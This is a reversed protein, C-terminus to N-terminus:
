NKNHKLHTYSECISLIHIYQHYKNSIKWEIYARVDLIEAQLNYNQFCLLTSSPYHKHSM